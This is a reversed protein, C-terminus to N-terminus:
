DTSKCFERVGILDDVHCAEYGLNSSWGAVLVSVSIESTPDQFAEPFMASRTRIKMPSCDLLKTLVSFVWEVKSM